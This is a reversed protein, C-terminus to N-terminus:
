VQRRRRLALATMGFGLLALSAPEPVQTEFGVTSDNADTYFGVVQRHDNIGNALASFANAPALTAFNGGIDIFGFMNGAADTYDGVIDGEDNVGLAQTSVAHPAEFVSIAGGNDTFASFDGAAKQFFGVVEGSNNVGTAQSNFNTPLLANIDTYQNSKRSLVFAKQGTGGAPDTSSYGAVETGTENIGLLQNFATGPRDVIQFGGNGSHIFGHNSGNADVFFGVTTGQADIGVVQTGGPENPVNQRTFTSPPTLLFGNFITANGYGVVTGSNNIGLLQTFTPNDPDAISLFSGAHASTAGIATALVAAGLAAHINRM